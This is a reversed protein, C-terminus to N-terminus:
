ADDPGGTNNVLTMIQDLYQGRQAAVWKSCWDRPHTHPWRTYASTQPDDGGDSEAVVVPPLRRCPSTGGRTNLEPLWGDATTRPTAVFRFGGWWACSVCRREHLGIGPGNAAATDTALQEYINGM